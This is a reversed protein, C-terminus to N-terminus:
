DAPARLVTHPLEIKPPTLADYSREALEGATIASEAADRYQRGIEGLRRFMDAPLDGASAAAGSAVADPDRAAQRAAAVAAAFRQQLRGTAADAIVRDARARALQQDKEDVKEQIAATRRQEEARNAEIEAMRADTARIREHDFAAQDTARGAREHEIEVHQVGIVACLAAALGLELWLRWTALFGIM